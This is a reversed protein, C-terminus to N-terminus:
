RPVFQLQPDKYLVTAINKAETPTLSDLYWGSQIKSVRRDGEPWVQKKNFGLARLIDAVVHEDKRDMDKLHMGIVMQLIYPASRIYGVNNRHVWPEIQSQWPHQQQRQDTEANALSWLIPEDRGIWWREKARYRHVVEAYLQLRVAKVGEIDITGVRVPWMRRAGTPDNLYEYDNGDFSWGHQRKFKTPIRGYPPRYNDELRSIFDKQEARGHRTMAIGESFNMIMNGCMLMLNDKDTFSGTFSGYYDDFALTQLLTTKFEGQSGEFCLVHDHREGPNYYRAVNGILWRAGVAQSYETNEVGCYDSLWTDLRPTSDWILSDLFETIINKCNKHAVTTICKHVMEESVLSPIGCKQIHATIKTVRQDTLPVWARSPKNKEETFGAPPHMLHVANMFTDYRFRGKFDPHNELMLIVNHQNARPEGLRGNQIQWRWDGIKRLQNQRVNLADAYLRDFIGVGLNKINKNGIRQRANIICFNSAHLEVLKQCIKSIDGTNSGNHLAEILPEVADAASIDEASNIATPREEVLKAAHEAKATAIVLNVTHETLDGDYKEHILGIYEPNDLKGIDVESNLVAELELQKGYGIKM